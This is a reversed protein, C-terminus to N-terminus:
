SKEAMKATYWFMQCRWFIWRISAINSIEAGFNYRSVIVGISIWMPRILRFKMDILKKFWSNVLAWFFVNTCQFLIWKVWELLTFVVKPGDWPSVVMRTLFIWMAGVRAFDSARQIIRVWWRNLLKHCTKKLTNLGVTSILGGWPTCPTCHIM